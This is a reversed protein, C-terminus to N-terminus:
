ATRALATLALVIVGLALNLRTLQTERHMLAAEGEPERGGARLLAARALAPAVGWTQYASVAIMGGFTVHKILIARAWANDVALLGEYNPNAGMQVLGTVILLALCFWGLPNLRRNLNRLLIAYNDAPLLRRAVPYVLLALAALAGIWVVTALMHLWFSLLLAWAPTSM